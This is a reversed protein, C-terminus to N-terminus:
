TCIGSMYTKNQVVGCEAQTVKGQGRGEKMVERGMVESGELLTSNSYLGVLGSDM